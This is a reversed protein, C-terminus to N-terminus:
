NELMFLLDSEKTCGLLSGVREIDENKLLELTSKAKNKAIGRIQNSPAQGYVIQTFGGALCAYLVAQEVIKSELISQCIYVVFMYCNGKTRKHHAYRAVTNKTRGVYFVSNIPDATKTLVYVCIKDKHKKYKDKNKEKAESKIKNYITTISKCIYVIAAIAVLLLGVVVFVNWLMALLSKLSIVLSTGAASLAAMQTVMTSSVYYAAAASYGNADINKTPNNLGYQFLNNELVCDGFTAAFVAEDANIFRGVVPDYYRSQLYYKLTEFDFYYSRYLYPNTIALFCDSSDQLITPMGWADYSYRVVVQANQDLIAIVDGQLNKQFYYPTNNYLIGLVSDENDYLPTLVNGNWTERLIKTGDLVYNHTAGNVTKSTRIGNANYTYTYGDYSKLQRGKEWTLTHGLYSLPNGQHDYTIEQGDYCILLDRWTAHYSYQKGNKTQINGYNDYTVTNVPVNNVMEETLQGLADYSYHTTNTQLNGDRATIETVHTIREENDYAYLLTTDDSLTIQSVLHTTPASKVKEYVTHLPSVNGTHYYFQRSVFGTGLQIEDFVKRGFSDTKSHATVTRGNVNFKAVTNDEGADYFITQETGGEPMLVKKLLKGENDYYYRITNILTKQLIIEGDISAIESETARILRGEEYTYNYERRQTMDISRVINGQVDYAYKYRAIEVDSQNYWTESMMQGISNYTAKMYDGNAYKIQKLRGNGNKYSYQILQRPFGDVDISQLNHFENYALNYKMGDGRLIETMNGFNDYTYSVQADGTTNHSTVKTTRGLRDYEYATKNGCRDTVETNRSTVCDVTYQTVNGRADAEAILNNGADNGDLCNDDANYAFARYITGFEGDTFTTETLVNGYDDKKEEFLPASDITEVTEDTSEEEYDTNELVFDSATLGTELNDRVLQIDDFYATGSNYNYECYVRVALVRKFQSKSFQVSAFQWEKTCPQFDATFDETGDSYVVQARLRFVPPTAVGDRDHDPLAYGKAWGSLTFTERTSRSKRVSPEQYAYKEADLDGFLAIAKSMNFGTNSPARVDLGSLGWYNLGQEFSNNEILNYPNAYPNRELQAGDAYVTGKGRMVIQVHVGTEAKLEFPAVLRVYQSDKKAIRESVALINGLMDVVRICIGVQSADGFNSLSRFYVSFAYQGAPLADVTQYVGNDYTAVSTSCMRLASNGFHSYPENKRPEYQFYISNNPFPQWGSLDNFSHNVLLNNISAAVGVNGGGAYPNVGSGAGNYAGSGTDESTVYESVVNGDYDFAYVTQIVNNATEGEEPDMQETTTVITRASAASHSYTSTAGLTDNLGYETVGTVCDGSFTYEVRYLTEGTSSVVTVGAPKNSAYTFLARSNDPYTIRKLLYGDYVYTIYTDDPASISTLKGASNYAFGFERGAGDTVSTIRNGTYTIDMHNHFGDEIKFLRGYIPDFHYTLDGQTLTCKNPDYFLSGSDVDEYLKYCQSNDDLCVCENSEKFCVEEGNEGIYVFHVEYGNHTTNVRRM